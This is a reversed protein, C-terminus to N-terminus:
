WLSLRMMWQTFAKYDEEVEEKEKTYSNTHSNLRKLFSYSIFHSFLFWCCGVDFSITM